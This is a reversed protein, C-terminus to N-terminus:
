QQRRKSNEVVAVDGDDSVTIRKARILELVGLFTAVAESRSKFDTFFEFIKKVGGRRIGRLIHVVRSTVSVMPATVLPEFPETSVNRHRAVRSNMGEAATLLEYPDPLVTSETDVTIEMPERVFLGPGESMSKLRSAARKCMGYEILQGTLERELRVTEEQRPLLALSKMHVLRAAMEIFESTPDLESTDSTNLFDLYQDILEYIRIDYLDMKHTVVLHLLLDLPGEFQELRFKVASM